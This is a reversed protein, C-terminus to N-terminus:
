KSNEEGLIFKEFKRACEVVKDTSNELHQGRMQELALALAKIRVEEKNELM